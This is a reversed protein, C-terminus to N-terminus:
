EQGSVARGRPRRSMGHLALGPSRRACRRALECASCPVHPVGRGRLPRPRSLAPRRQVPTHTFPQLFENELEV